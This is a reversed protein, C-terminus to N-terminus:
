VGPTGGLGNRGREAREQEAKKDTNGAPGQGHLPVGGEQRELDVGRVRGRQDRGGIRREGPLHGGLPQGHHVAGLRLSQHGVVTGPRRRGRGDAADGVGGAGVVHHDAAQVFEAPLDADVAGDEVYERRGLRM